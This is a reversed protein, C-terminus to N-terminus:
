AHDIIEKAAPGALRTAETMARINALPTASSMGCTPSLMDIDGERVLRLALKRIGEPQGQHLLFTSINGIVAIDPLSQRLDAPSVSADPIYADIGLRAISAESKGIAGCMHLLVRGGAAKIASTLRALHPAVANEFTKPGLVAPTSTDEHIAIAVAGADILQQSWAILFDTVHAALVATEAPRTRLERLFTTPEVVSAAISVPGILNAIIPLGGATRSLQRVAEVAIQARGRNLLTEVAPLQVDLVSRYPEHVVRAETDADGLNIEAGYCEAEITTCLPVGISEFGTIRAAALALGAMATPDGHAAPLTFGSIAVVEAPVSTMSGGTCIVPVRDVPKRDLARLFRDRPSIEAAEFSDAALDAALLETTAGM